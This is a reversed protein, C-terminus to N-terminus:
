PSNSRDDGGAGISGGAPLDEVRLPLLSCLISSSLGFCEGSWLTIVEFLSKTSELTNHV